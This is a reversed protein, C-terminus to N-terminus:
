GEWVWNESYFWEVLMERFEDTWKIEHIGATVAELCQELAYGFADENPVFVGTIINKYGPQRLNETVKEPWEFGDFRSAVMGNEIGEM